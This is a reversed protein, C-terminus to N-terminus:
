SHTKSLHRLKNLTLKWLELSLTIISLWYISVICWLQCKWRWKTAKQFVTSPWNGRLNTWIKITKCYYTYFCKPNKITKKKQDVLKIKMWNWPYNLYAISDGILLVKQLTKMKCIWEQNKKDYITIESIQNLLSYYSYYCIDKVKQQM